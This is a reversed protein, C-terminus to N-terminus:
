PPYEKRSTNKKRLRRSSFVGRWRWTAWRESSKWTASLHWRNISIAVGLGLVICFFFFVIRPNSKVLVYYIYIYICIYIYIYVCIYQKTAWSKHNKVQSVSRLHKLHKAQGFDEAGPLPGSYFPESLRRLCPICIPNSRPGQIPWLHKFTGFDHSDLHVSNSSPRPTSWSTSLTLPPDLHVSDASQGVQVLRHIWGDLQVISVTAKSPSISQHTVQSRFYWVETRWHWSWLLCKAYSWQPLWPGMLNSWQAFPHCFFNCIADGGATAGWFYRHEEPHRWQGFMAIKRWRNEPRHPFVWLDKWMHPSCVRQYVLM